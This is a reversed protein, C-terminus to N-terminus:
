QIKIAYGDLDNNELDIRSKWQIKCNWKPCRNAQVMIAPVLQPSPSYLSGARACMCPMATHADPRLSALMNPDLETAVRNRQISTWSPRQPLWNSPRLTWVRTLHTERAKFQRGMSKGIPSNGPRNCVPLELSTSGALPSLSFALVPPRTRCWKFHEGTGSRRRPM